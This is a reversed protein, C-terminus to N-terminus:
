DGWGAKRYHAAGAWACIMMAVFSLGLFLTRRLSVGRNDKSIAM